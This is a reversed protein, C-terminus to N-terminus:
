NLISKYNYVPLFGYKFIKKIFLDDQIKSDDVCKENFLDEIYIYSAYYELDNERYDYIIESLIKNSYNEDLFTYELLLNSAEKKTIEGNYYKHKILIKTFDYLLRINHFFQYNQDIVSYGNKIIITSLIKSWAYHNIDNYMNMKTKNNTSNYLSRSLIEEIIFFNIDTRSLVSNESSNIILNLKSNNYYPNTIMLTNDFIDFMMNYRPFNINLPEITYLINAKKIFSLNEEYQENFDIIRSSYDKNINSKEKNKNLIYHIISLTDGHTKLSDEGISNQYLFYANHFINKRLEKIDLELLYLINKYEYKNEIDFVHNNLLSKIDEKTLFDVKSIKTQLWSKYSILVKSNNSIKNEIRELASDSLDIYLPINELLNEVIKLKNLSEEIFYDNSSLLLKKTRKFFNPLYDLTKEISLLKDNNSIDKSLLLNLLYWNLSDIYYSPDRSYAKYTYKFLLSNIKENISIYKNRNYLSLSGKNIQSIELNFRKLDFLYEDFYDIDTKKNKIHYNYSDLQTFNEPHHILLWNNFALSLSNFSRNNSNICGQIFLLLLSIFLIKRRNNINEM